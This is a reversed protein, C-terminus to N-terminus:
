HYQELNTYTQMRSYLTTRNVGLLKAAQSLNGHTLKLAAEVYAQEWQKLTQDLNFNAHLQLHKKALEQMAEPDSPLMEPLTDAETDLEAQLAERSVIQGAHKTVLRIVINRLERANGPFPYAQWVRQAAPDLRFPAAGGQRVYFDRFHELLLTKDEGLDRLPPVSVTFVSLRHYLDARFRGAKIEQRLDRNTAAVIRANSHRPQTEGVRQYEGNELVRLLKAQLEVPLEGIEDLFLTGDSADEFYGARSATAGTFAGKSYGFLTPEVLSPSIAACNLALYPKKARVSLRHLCGAVLEKGSGSEGEILVPFPADAFQRIQQRLKEANLSAGLIDCSRSSETQKSQEVEHIRLADFLLSKIQEPECPKPIFEVAGLARAHRANADDNQGSLVVIKIEPARALLEGILKFGEDPRHPLPPLGLDVLALQPSQDMQRLLSAAHLRSDAVYVDFDKSLVFHLTDTILADDDVILLSPKSQPM